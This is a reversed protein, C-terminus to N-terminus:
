WASWSAGATALQFPSSATTNRLAPAGTSTMPWIPTRGIVSHPVPRVLVASLVSRRSGVTDAPSGSPVSAKSGASSHSPKGCFVSSPRPAWVKSGPATLWGTVTGQPPGGGGTGAGAALRTTVAVSGSPVTTSTSTVPTDGAGAAPEITRVASVGASP